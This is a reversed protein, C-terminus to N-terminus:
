GTRPGIPLTRVSEAVGEVMMLGRPKYADGVWHLGALPAPRRVDAGQAARNVPWSDAFRSASLVTCRDFTTGFIRRLDRLGAEREARHDGSQLVQHSMLLHQGPPALGPDANSPQVIGAVRETGLCFMIGRHSILSTPSLFQIKLGSARPPAVKGAPEGCLALTEIPGLNSVVLQAEIVDVGGNRRDRVEVGTVRHHQRAIAVVEHELLVEGGGSRVAEVLGEILGRCGGRPVGPLGERVTTILVARMERYSVASLPLSLAFESFARAVQYVRSRAGVAARIWQDFSGEFGPSLGRILLRGVELILDIAGRCVMHEGDMWFSAVVDADVIPVDVDLDRLMRALLGGSGHPVLHLAGTSVEAGHLPTATFRGGPRDARELVIVTRGQRTLRVAALLGGLGAGVVVADARAQV